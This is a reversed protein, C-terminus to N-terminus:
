LNPRPAVCAVPNKSSTTASTSACPVGPTRSSGGASMATTSTTAARPRATCQWAATAVSTTPSQVPIRLRDTSTSTSFGSRGTVALSAPCATSKTTNKGAWCFAVCRATSISRCASCPRRMKADTMHANRSFWMPSPIDNVGIGLARCFNRRAERDGHIALMITFIDEKLGCDYDPANAIAICTQYGWVTDIPRGLGDFFRIQVMRRVPPAVQERYAERQRWFAAWADSESEEPSPNCENFLKIGYQKPDCERAGNDIFMAQAGNSSKRTLRRWTSQKVHYVDVMGYRADRYSRVPSIHPFSRRIESFIM